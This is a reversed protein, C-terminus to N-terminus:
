SLRKAPPAQVYFKNHRPLVGIGVMSNWGIDYDTSQIESGWKLFEDYIDSVKCERTPGNIKNEMFNVLKHAEYSNEFPIWTIDGHNNVTSPLYSPKDPQRTTSINGAKSYATRGTGITPITNVDMDCFRAWAIQGMTYLTNKATPLLVEKYLYDAISKGKEPSFMVKLKDGLSHKPM